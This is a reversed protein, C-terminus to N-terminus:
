RAVSRFRAGDRAEGSGKEGCGAERSGRAACRQGGAASTALSSLGRGCEAEAHSWLAMPSPFRVLPSFLAITSSSARSSATILCPPWRAPRAPRAEGVGVDGSGAEREEGSGAEREEGSGGLFVHSWEACRLPTSLPARYSHPPRKPHAAPAAGGGRPHRSAFAGGACSVAHIGICRGRGWLREPIYKDHRRAGFGLGQPALAHVHTRRILSSVIIKIRPMCEIVCTLLPIRAAHAGLTLRASRPARSTSYLGASYGQAM